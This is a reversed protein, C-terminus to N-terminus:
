EEGFEGLRCDDIDGFAGIRMASVAEFAVGGGTDAEEILRLFTIITEDLDGPSLSVGSPREIDQDEQDDLIDGLWAGVLCSRQLLASTGDVQDGAADQAAQAWIIGFVTAVAGDGIEEHLDRLDDEPVYDFPDGPSDFDDVNEDFFFDLDELVLDTVEDFPLNGENALDAEDDFPLQTIDPPNDIYDYCYEVGQNIGDQFARVRDFGNGHALPDNPDAGVPDRVQILAGVSSDLAAGDAFPGWEDDVQQEVWAGAFCDAQNETLVSPPNDFGQGTVDLIGTQFQIIHGFEHAFVVAPGAEGFLDTLTGDILEPDWAVTLGEPCPAAFANMAVDEPFIEVGGCEPGNDGDETPVASIREDPLRDFEHDIDEANDEWFDQVNEIVEENSLDEDEDDEVDIDFGGDDDMEAIDGDSDDSSSSAEDGGDDGSSSDDGGGCAAATAALTLVLLLALFRRM